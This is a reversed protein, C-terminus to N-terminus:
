ENALPDGAPDTHRPDEAPGRLILCTSTVSAVVAGDGDRVECELLATSPGARTVRGRVCLRGACIPKLISHKIEVAIFSDRAGLQASLAVGMAVDTLEFLTGGYQMATPTAFGREVDVELVAGAPESSIMGGRRLRAVAFPFGDPGGEPVRLSEFDPLM